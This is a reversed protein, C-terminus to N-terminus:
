QHQVQIRDGSAPLLLDLEGLLENEDSLQQNQSTCLRVAVSCLLVVALLRLGGPIM